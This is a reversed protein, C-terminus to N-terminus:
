NKQINPILADCKVSVYLILIGFYSDNQNKAEQTKSGYTFGVAGSCLLIAALYDIARYKSGKYLVTSVIM